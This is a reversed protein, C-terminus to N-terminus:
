KGRSFIDSTIGLEEDEREDIAVCIQEVVFGTAYLCSCFVLSVTMLLAFYAGEIM